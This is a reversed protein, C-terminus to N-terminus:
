GNDEEVDPMDSAQLPLEFPPLGKLELIGQRLAEIHEDNFDVAYRGDSYKQHLIMDGHLDDLQFLM